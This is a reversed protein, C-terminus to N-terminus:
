VIYFKLLINKTQEGPRIGPVYSGQKEILWKKEPNVQVFAYFYTFLIILVIYVVMGINSSPNAANAINQAWEKDPYFLTLTRPLLFFAMAFIVPIVGASNVKFTSVNSTFRIKLLKNRLM